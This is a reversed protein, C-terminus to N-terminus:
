KQDIETILVQNEIEAKVQETRRMQEAWEAADQVLAAIANIGGQAEVSDWLEAKEAELQQKRKEGKLEKRLDIM